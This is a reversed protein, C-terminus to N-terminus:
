VEMGACTADLRQLDLRRGSLYEMLSADGIAGATPQEHPHKCNAQMLSDSPSTKCACLCYAILGTVLSRAEIYIFLLFLATKL